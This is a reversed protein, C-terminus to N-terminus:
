GVPTIECASSSWQADSTFQVTVDRITPADRVFAVVQGYRADAHIETDDAPKTHRTSLDARFSGSGEYTCSVVYQRNASARFVVGVASIVPAGPTVEVLDGGWVAGMVDISIGAISSVTPKLAAIGNRERPIVSVPNVFYISTYSDVWPQRVSLRVPERLDGPEIEIGALRAAAAKHEKTAPPILAMKAATVPVISPAKAGPSSKPPAGKPGAAAAEFAFFPAIVILLALRRMRTM